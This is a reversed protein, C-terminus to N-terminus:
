ISGSIGGIVSSQGVLFLRITAMESRRVRFSVANEFVDSAASRLEGPDPSWDRPGDPEPHSSFCARSGSSEIFGRLTIRGFIIRLVFKLSMRSFRLKTHRAATSPQAVRSGEARLSLSSSLEDFDPLRATLPEAGSGGCNPAHTSGATLTRIWAQSATRRTTFDWHRVQLVPSGEPPEPVTRWTRNSYPLPDPPTEEDSGKKRRGVAPLVSASFQPTQPLAGLSGVRFGSSGWIKNASVKRFILGSGADKTGHEAAPPRPAIISPVDAMNNIRFGVAFFKFRSAWGRRCDSISISSVRM